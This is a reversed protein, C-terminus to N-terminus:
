PPVLPARISGVKVSFRTLWHIGSRIQKLRHSVRLAAIRDEGERLQNLGRKASMSSNVDASYPALAGLISPRIVPQRGTPFPVTFKRAFWVKILYLFKPVTSPLPLAGPNKM